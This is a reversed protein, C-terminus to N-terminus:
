LFLYIILTLLADNHERGANGLLLLLLIIIMDETDFSQPLLGSLLSKIGGDGPEAPVPPHSAPMPQAPKQPPPNQRQQMQQNTGRPHNQSTDQVPSRQFSGDSQPIYRNYM